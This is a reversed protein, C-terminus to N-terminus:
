RLPYGVPIRRAAILPLDTLWAAIALAALYYLLPIMRHTGQIRPPPPREDDTRRQRLPVWRSELVFEAAAALASIQAPSLMVSIPMGREHDARELAAREAKTM